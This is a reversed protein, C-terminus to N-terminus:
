RRSVSSRWRGAGSVGAWVVALAALYVLTGLGEHILGYDVMTNMSALSIAVIRVTNFVLGVVGAAVGLGACLLWPYARRVSLIVALVVSSLLIGFGNCESAVDFVSLGREVVLTIGFPDPQVAVQTQFGALTLAAASGRAALLRLMGDARPVFAVLAAACGLGALAPYFVRVGERGFCFSLLAAMNLCFGLIALPWLDFISAVALALCSASFLLIGHTTIALRFPHSRRASALAEFVTFGLLLFANVAQTTRTSLTFISYAMPGYAAVTVGVVTLVALWDGRL